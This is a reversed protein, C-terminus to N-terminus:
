KKVVGKLRLGLEYRKEYTVAPNQIEILFPISDVSRIIQRKVTSSLMDM